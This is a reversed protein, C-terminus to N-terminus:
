DRNYERSPDYDRVADSFPTDRPEQDNMQADHDADEDVKGLNNKIFEEPSEILM